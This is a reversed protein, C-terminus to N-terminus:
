YKKEVMIETKVERWNEREGVERENDRETELKGEDKGRKEM